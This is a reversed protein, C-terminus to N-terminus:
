TSNVNVQVFEALGSDEGGLQRQFSDSREAHLALHRHRMGRAPGGARAPRGSRGPRTAPMGASNREVTTASNVTNPNCANSYKARVLQSWRQEGIAAM